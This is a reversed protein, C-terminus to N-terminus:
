LMGFLGLSGEANNGAGRGNLEAAVQTYSRMRKGQMSAQVINM